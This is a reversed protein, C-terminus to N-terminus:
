DKSDGIGGVGAAETGLAHETQITQVVKPRAVVTYRPVTSAKHTIKLAIKARLVKLSLNGRSHNVAVDRGRLAIPSCRQFSLTGIDATPLCSM